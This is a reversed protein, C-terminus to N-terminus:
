KEIIAGWDATVDPELGNAEIEGYIRRALKSPIEDDEDLGFFKPVGVIKGNVRLAIGSQKLSKNGDAVTFKLHINGCNPLNIKETFTPGPIDEIDLRMDNVYIQFDAQRGYELILIRKLLDPNPFAL